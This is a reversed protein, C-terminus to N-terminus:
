IICNGKRMRRLGKGEHYLTSLQYHAEMNGLAIARTWYEFASNYDGEDYYKTGMDCIAVSDNAEIRKLCRENIEEETKAAAKRCFPCKPQLKSAEPERKTIAYCCGNCIQKRCCSTLVSKSHDLPLPFCCLPCDGFHSSEPQKFLIEDRLEAARKAKSCEAKHDTWHSYQCNVNCYHVLKCGSCTKLDNGEKGCSACTQRNSSSLTGGGAAEDGEADRARNHPSSLRGDVHDNVASDIAEYM